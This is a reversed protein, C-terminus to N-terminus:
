LGTRAEAGSSAAASRQKGDQLAKLWQVVVEKRPTSRQYEKEVVRVFGPHLEALRDADENSREITREETCGGPNGFTQDTLFSFNVLNPKGHAFLQLTVDMDERTSIRGFKALAHVTPVHYGLAYMMRKGEQWGGRQASDGISGGRAAFGAHPVEPSLIASLELFAARIQDETAKLFKGPDDTRRVAFRLDDDLMVLRDIGDQAAMEMIWARKEAITFSDRLQQWVAIGKYNSAYRHRESAPCVVVVNERMDKPLNLLTLPKFSRGKTPIIIKM